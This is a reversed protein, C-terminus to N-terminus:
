FPGAGTAGAVGAGGVQELQNRSLTALV